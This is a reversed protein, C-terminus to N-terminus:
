GRIVSISDEVTIGCKKRKEETYEERKERRKRWVDWSICPKKTWETHISKNM